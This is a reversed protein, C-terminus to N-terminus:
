AAVEQAPRIGVGTPALAAAKEIRKKANARNVLAQSAADVYESFLVPHYLYNAEDLNIEKFDFLANRWEVDFKKRNSPRVLKRIQDADDPLLCGQTFAFDIARCRWGLQYDDLQALSPDGLNQLPFNKYWFIPTRTKGKRKRTKPSGEAGIETDDFGDEAESYTSASQVLAKVESTSLEPQCKVRNFLLMALAVRDRPMGSSFLYCAIRFLSNNRNGEPICLATTVDLTPTQNTTSSRIPPRLPEATVVSLLWDPAAAIPANPDLWEYRNGNAHVSPPAVVYGGDGRVDLGPGLEGARTYVKAGPHKFYLHRGSGTKATLTEPLAGFKEELGSLTQSGIGDIKDDVDLVFIGSGPGTVIGLNAEPTSDM